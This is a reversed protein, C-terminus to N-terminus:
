ASFTGTANEKVLSEIATIGQKIEESVKWKAGKNLQLDSVYKGKSLEEIIEAHESEEDGNHENGHGEEHDHDHSHSFGGHSHEHSEEHHHDHEHEHTDHCGFFGFCALFFLVSYTLKMQRYLQFLLTFFFPGFAM